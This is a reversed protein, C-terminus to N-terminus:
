RAVTGAKADTLFYTAVSLAVELQGGGQTANPQSLEVKEIILFEEATEVEYLFRRIDAYEGVLTVKGTLKTLRSDRVEESDFVGGRYRLNSEVATKGLWFNAMNQAGAFDKPLIEGYFKRLDAEARDKRTHQDKALMAQRKADALDSDVQLRVLEAGAEGRQLWLVAGLGLVNLFLFLLVPVIVRRREIFIRQALSM